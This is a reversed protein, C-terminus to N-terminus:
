SKVVITEEIPCLFGKCDPVITMTNSDSLILGPTQFTPRDHVLARSMLPDAGLGFPLPVFASFM